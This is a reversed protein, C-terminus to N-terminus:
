INSNNKPQGNMGFKIKLKLYPFYKKKQFKRGRETLCVITNRGHGQELYVIGDKKLNHIASNITQRSIGTLKSIESQLCRDKKECIVYLINMISDSLGMKVAMEHYLSNIGGSLHTYETAHLYHMYEDGQGIEYM